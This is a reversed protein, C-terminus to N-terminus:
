LEAGALEDARAKALALSAVNAVEVGRRYVRWRRGEAYIEWRAGDSSFALLEGFLERTWRLSL